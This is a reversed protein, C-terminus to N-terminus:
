KPDDLLHPHEYINGIIEIETENIHQYDNCGLWRYYFGGEKWETIAIEIQPEETYIEQFKVIDGEYIEKGEEDHLGTFQMLNAQSPLYYNECIRSTAIENCEGHISFAIYSINGSLIGPNEKTYIMTKREPVWARFKIIRM